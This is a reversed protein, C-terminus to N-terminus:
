IRPRGRAGALPFSQRIEVPDVSVNEPRRLRAEFSTKVAVHRASRTGRRRCNAAVTVVNQGDDGDFEAPCPIKCTIESHTLTM